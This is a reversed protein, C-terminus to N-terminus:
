LNTPNTNRDEVKRSDQGPISCRDLPTRAEDESEQMIEWALTLYADLNEKLSALEEETLDPYIERLEEDHM